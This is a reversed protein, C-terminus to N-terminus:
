LWNAGPPGTHVGAAGARPVCADSCKVLHPKEGLYFDIMEPVHPYISKDDAIGTGIANALTVKGARYVSLLGAVGLTSDKRFAM